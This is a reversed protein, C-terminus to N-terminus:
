AFKTLMIDGQYLAIDVKSNRNVEEITDGLPKIHAQEMDAYKKIAEVVDANLEDSTGFDEKIEEEMSHLKELFHMTDGASPDNKLLESGEKLKEEFNKESNVLAILCGFLLIRM